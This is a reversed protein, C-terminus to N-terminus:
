RPTEKTARRAHMRALIQTNTPREWAHIGASRVYSLGHAGQADGCWRCGYPPPATRHRVLTASM